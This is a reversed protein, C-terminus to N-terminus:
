VADLDGPVTIRHVPDFKGGRVLMVIGRAIQSQWGSWERITLSFNKRRKNPAQPGWATLALGALTGEGGTVALGRSM